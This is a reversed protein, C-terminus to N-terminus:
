EKKNELFYLYPKFWITALERRGAPRPQAIAASNIATFGATSATRAPLAGQSRCALQKHM